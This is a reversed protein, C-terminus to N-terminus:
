WKIVADYKLTLEVFDAYSIQDKCKASLGTAQLDSKIILVDINQRLSSNYVGSQSLLIQHQNKILLQLQNLESENLIRTINILNPM